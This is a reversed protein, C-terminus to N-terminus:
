AYTRGGVKLMIMGVYSNRMLKAKYHGQILEAHMIGLISLVWAEWANMSHLLMCGQIAIMRLDQRSAIM